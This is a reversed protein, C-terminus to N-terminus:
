KQTEKIFSLMVPKADCVPVCAHLIGAELYMNEYCGVESRAPNENIVYIRDGQEWNRRVTVIKTKTTYNKGFGFHMVNGTVKLRDEYDAQKWTGQLLLLAEEDVITVNGYRSNQTPYLTESNEGSIPFEDVFTIGGDQFYCERITAYSNSSGEYSLGTKKLCLVTREGQKEATFETQLVPSGRWLRVLENGTIEVRPGVYNKPEWAGDLEHFEAEDKKGLM